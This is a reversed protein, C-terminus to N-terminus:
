AKFWINCLKLKNIFILLFFFCDFINEVDNKNQKTKKGFLQWLINLEVKVSESMLVLLVMKKRLLIKKGTFFLM